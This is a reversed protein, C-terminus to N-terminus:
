LGKNYDSKIRLIFKGLVLYFNNYLLNINIELLESLENYTNYNGYLTIIHFIFYIFSRIIINRMEESTIKDEAAKKIIKSVTNYYAGYIENFIM